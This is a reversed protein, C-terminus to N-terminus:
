GGKKAYKTLKDAIVKIPMIAIGTVVSSLLMVWFNISIGTMWNIMGCMIFTSVVISLVALVIAWLSIAIKEGERM